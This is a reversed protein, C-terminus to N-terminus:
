IRRRIKKKYIGLFTFVCVYLGRHRQSKEEERKKKYSLLRGRSWSLLSGYRFCIRKEKMKQHFIPARTVMLKQQQHVPCFNFNDSVSPRHKVRRGSQESRGCKERREINNCSSHIFLIRGGRSHPDELPTTPSFSFVQCVCM